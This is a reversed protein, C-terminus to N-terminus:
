PGSPHALPATRPTDAALLVEALAQRLQPSLDDPVSVWNLAADPRFPNGAECRATALARRLRPDLAALARLVTAPATLHAHAPRRGSAIEIPGTLLQLDRAPDALAAELAALTTWPTRGPALLLLADVAAGPLPQTSAVIAHAGRTLRSLLRHRDLPTLNVATRVSPASATDHLLSRARSAVRAATRDDPCLVVIRRMGPRAATAIALRVADDLLAPGDMPRPPRRMPIHLRYGRATIPGLTREHGHRLGPRVSRLRGHEDVLDAATAQLVYREAAVLASSLLDGGTARAAELALTDEVLLLELPPLRTGGYTAALVAAGSLTTIALLPGPSRIHHALTVPDDVIPCGAPIHGLPIVERAGRVGVMRTGLRCRTRWHALAHPLDDSQLVLVTRGHGGVAHEAHRALASRSGTM